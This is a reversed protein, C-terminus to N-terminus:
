SSLNPTTRGPDAVRANDDTAERKPAPLLTGIGIWNTPSSTSLLQALHYAPGPWTVRKGHAAEMARLIVDFPAGSGSSNSGWRAMRCVHTMSDLADVVPESSERRVSSRTRALLYVVLAALFNWSRPALLFALVAPGVDYVLWAASRVLPSPSVCGVVDDPKKGLQVQGDAWLHAANVTERVLLAHLLIVEAAPVRYSQQLLRRAFDDLSEDQPVAIPTDSRIASLPDPWPWVVFRSDPSTLPKWYEKEPKTSGSPLPRRL